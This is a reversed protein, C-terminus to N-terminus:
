VQVLPRLTISKMWTFTCKMQIPIGPFNWSTGLIFMSSNVLMDTTATLDHLQTLLMLIIDNHKNINCGEESVENWKQCEGPFTFCVLYIYRKIYERSQLFGKNKCQLLSTHSHANVYICAKVLNHLIEMLPNSEEDHIIIHGIRCFYFCFHFCFCLFFFPNRLM